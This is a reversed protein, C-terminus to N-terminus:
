RRLTVAPNEGYVQRHRRAFDGPHAMGWRRAIGRVTDGRAPDARLLDDHAAVLRLERLYAGPTTGAHSRFARTLEVTSLGVHRAVDEVTIPSPAAAHLYEVARRYAAHQGAPSTRRSGPEAVLPFAELTAVAIRRRLDARLLPLEAIEPDALAQQAFAFTSRWYREQAPSRPRPDHFAPELAEDGYVSRATEQLTARGVTASDVLLQDVEGYYEQGPQVLFVGLGTGSRGDITWEVGGARPVVVSFVEDLVMRGAISGRFTLQGLSLDADGRVEQRYLFPAGEAVPGMRASTYVQRLAENAVEPDTTAVHLHIPTGPEARM